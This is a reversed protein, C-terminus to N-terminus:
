GRRVSPRSPPDAVGGFLGFDGLDTKAPRLDSQAPGGQSIIACANKLLPTELAGSPAIVYMKLDGVDNVDSDAGDAYSDGEVPPDHHRPPAIYDHLRRRSM